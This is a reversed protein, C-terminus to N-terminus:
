SRSGPSRDASGPRPGRGTPVTRGKWTVEGRVSALLSALFIVLFFGVVLPFFLATPGFNGLPRLLVALQGAYLVYLAVSAVTPPGGGTAWHVLGAPLEWAAVLAGSLWAVILLLTWWPIGVAGAAINKTFGEAVQALGKPYMRFAVVDRGAFSHVPRGSARYARGLAIDEVIASRVAAHGGVADYDSRRTIMVPGFASGQRRGLRAGMVGILNFLAALREYPQVMQHFPQVTVLGGLLHLSVLARALLTPAPRTDADLLVLVEGSARAVGQDLAWTKGTWGAPLPAATIVTAGHARAVAATADSSSDDVVLIEAAPTTQAALAPLLVALAEEENRAPIVVSVEPTDVTPTPGAAADRTREPLGPVGPLLVWGLAWRALLTLTDLDIATL